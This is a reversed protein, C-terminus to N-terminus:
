KVSGAMDGQVLPDGSLNSTVARRSYTINEGTFTDRGSIVTDATIEPYSGVHSSSPTMGVQFAIERSPVTIGSGAKVSGVKWVIEGGLPNYTVNEDAPSVVGMWRVYPPLTTKVVTDSIDNSSNVVSWVVTYTTEQGNIPPLPGSNLLPGTFYLSRPSVQLNSSVRITKKLTTEVTADEERAESSRIGKFVLEFTMEPNQFITRKGSLLPMTAFSFTLNNGQGPAILEPLGGGSKSWLITDDVSNYFGRSSVISSKDIIEGNLKLKIEAHLLNVLLNNEWEIDGRVQQGDKIIHIDDQNGNFALNVAIFPRKIVLTKLSSAYVVDVRASDKNTRQGAAVRFAREEENQGQIIGKIKVLREEGQKLDGLFWSGEGSSAKPTAEKFIFGSPYAINLIVDKLVEKSNSVTKVNLTIEQNSSADRPIDFLITLPSSSILTKWFSEKEIIANSNENRYEIAVKVEREANEEGFLAARITETILENPKVTGLNKRFQTENVKNSVIRSGVPFTVVLDVYELSTNNKNTIAVQLSIEEGAKVSVPGVISIDVNQPSIVNTNGLYLYTAFIVAGVFFLFSVTFLLSLIPFKKKAQAMNQINLGDEGGWNVKEEFNIDSLEGRKRELNGPEQSYLRKETKKIGGEDLNELDNNM